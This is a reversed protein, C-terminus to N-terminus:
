RSTHEAGAIAAYIGLPILLVFIRLLWLLIDAQPKLARAMIGVARQAGVVSSLLESPMGKGGM